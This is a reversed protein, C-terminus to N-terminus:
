KVVTITYTGQITNRAPGLSKTFKFHKTEGEPKATLDGLIFMFGAMPGSPGAFADMMASGEPTVCVGAGAYTSSEDFTVVWTSAASASTDQHAILKTVGGTNYVNPGCLAFSIGATSDGGGAYTGDPQRTMIVSPIDARTEYSLGSLETIMTGSISVELKASGVTFTVTKQAIGRNSVSEFAIDGRDGNKPGATYTVTAPAPQKEGAPELKAVGSLTAVVPKDLENGEIRHMLKAAVQKTADAAIDGGAPDVLLEVCKGERWMKEAQQAAATVMTEVYLTMGGAFQAQADLETGEGGFTIGPARPSEPLRNGAGDNAIDGAATRTSIHGSGEAPAAFLAYVVDGNLAPPDPVPPVYDPDGPQPEPAGPPQYDPDGPQPEPAVPPQYDPDGPQPEPAIPPEYGPDGPQLDPPPPPEYGPDGPEPEPPAPIDEAQESGQSTGEVKIIRADDGVSIGVSGSFEKSTRKYSGDKIFTENSTLKITATTHGSADPCFDIEVHGGATSDVGFLVVGTKKDVVQGKTKIVLDVLLKSGSTVSHVTMTTNITGTNGSIEVTEPKDSAVGNDARGSAFDDLAGVVTAWVQFTNANPEPLAAFVVTAVKGDVSGVPTLSRWKALVRAQNVDIAAAFETAGPGLDALGGRARDEARMARQAADMSGALDDLNLGPVSSLGPEESPSVAPTDTSGPPPTVPSSGCAASALALVMVMTPWIPRRQRNM